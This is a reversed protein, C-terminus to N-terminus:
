KRRIRSIPIFTETGTGLRRQEGKWAHGYVVEYSLPYKGEATCLTQYASEFHLWSQKGTLGKNRSQNINRVGQAKLNQLLQKLSAYHVTLLEMDVVPDLFHEALLHDGIDHMDIFDNAHAHQDARLWAQKLEKFTDPGLTSFMLCGNFNMVRNLEQALNAFSESWHIVQNAFILDFCGNAFPLNTMDGNVLPWKRRWGQKKRAQELMATSLDLGIIEAQPYKKKLLLSFLGTGCGLDLVYRPTIKLYHLRDFLREGIENQIKAAQEYESAHKTFANCIEIKLNM